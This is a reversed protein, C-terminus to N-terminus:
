PTKEALADFVRASKEDGRERMKAAVKATVRRTSEDRYTETTVLAMLGVGFILFWICFMGRHFEISCGALTLQGVKVSGQWENAFGISPHIM